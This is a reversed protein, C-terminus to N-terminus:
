KVKNWIATVKGHIYDLEEMIATTDILGGEIYGTGACSLCSESVPNGNEDKSNSETGLGSCRGCKFSITQNTM